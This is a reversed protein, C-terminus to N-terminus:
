SSCTTICHINLLPMMLEMDTLQGNYAQICLVNANVLNGHFVKELEHSLCFKIYTNVMM